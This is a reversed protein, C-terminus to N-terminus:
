HADTGRLLMEHICHFISVCRTVCAFVPGETPINIQGSLSANEILHTCQLTPYNIALVCPASLLVQSSWPQRPRKWHHNDLWMFSLLCTRGRIQLSIHWIKFKKAQTQFIEGWIKWQYQFLTPRYSKLFFRQVAKEFVKLTSAYLIPILSFVHRDCTLKEGWVDYKSNNMEGRDFLHMAKGKSKRKLYHFSYILWM